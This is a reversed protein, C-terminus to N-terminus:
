MTICVAGSDMELVKADKWISVGYRNFLLKGNMGGGDRAVM